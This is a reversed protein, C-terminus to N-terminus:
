EDSLGKETDLQLPAFGRIVFKAPYIEDKYSWEAEYQMGSEHLEFTEEAGFVRVGVDGHESLQAQLYEILESIKM